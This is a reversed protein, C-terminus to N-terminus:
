FELMVLVSRMVERICACILANGCSSKTLPWRVGPGAQVMVRDCQYLHGCSFSAHQSSM